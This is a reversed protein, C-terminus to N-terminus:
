GDTDKLNVTSFAGLSEFFGPAREPLTAAVM